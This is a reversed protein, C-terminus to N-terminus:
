ATDEKQALLMDLLTWAQRKLTERAVAQNPPEGDGERRLHNYAGSQYARHMVDQAENVLDAFEDGPDDRDLALLLNALYAVPSDGEAREALDVHPRTEVELTEVHVPVSGETFALQEEVSARRDVIDGHAETRGTLRIRTLMLELPSTEVGNRVHESVCDSVRQPVGKADDIGSVDVEISDYRVTALPLQEADLTQDGTVTLLWPGHTGPEGPDLGQPSGPYMILPDVDVHIGPKHIHGLLWADAPTERFANTPVPAYQSGQADLDAHVVGVTPADSRKPLDYDDLPSNLVRENSFSWGDFHLVPDGERELTWREWSEDNGLLRLTYLDLDAVMRPLVDFDHNGSVTVVPIDADDLRIVGEEFAGYAEFYRNERDVVDGTIVVVDVNRDVAERVTSRWVTQPSFTQSDMEMPIRTPHRGLHIDGTCLITLKDRM